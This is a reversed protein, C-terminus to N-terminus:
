AIFTQMLDQTDKKSTFDSGIWTWSHSRVRSTADLLMVGVLTATRVIHM